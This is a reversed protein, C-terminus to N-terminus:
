KSQVRGTAEVRTAEAWLREEAELRALPCIRKTFRQEQAAFQQYIARCRMSCIRAIPCEVCAAFRPMPRTRIAKLVASTQWIAALPRRHVNGALSEPRHMCQCPYVDGNPAFSLTGTGAGCSGAAEFPVAESSTSGGVEGVAREFATVASIYAQPEPILDCGSDADLQEPTCLAMMFDRCGLVEAAFRPFGALSVVNRDTIVPRLTVRTKGTEVLNRIGRVIRAFTGSGRLADHEEARWSDLSVVVRSFSAAVRQARRDLLTGNTLLCADMGAERAEVGIECVHPHLLPEGGTFIVQECKLARLQRILGSLAAHSWEGQAGAQSRYRANYCYICRLNCRNTLHLYVQSLKPAADPLTRRTRPRQLQSVRVLLGRKILRQIFACLAAQQSPALTHKAALTAIIECPAAPLRFAEWVDLGADNLVTGRGSEGAFLLHREQRSSVMVRKSVCLQERPNM